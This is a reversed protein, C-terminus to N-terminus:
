SWDQRIIGIYYMTIYRNCHNSTVSDDNILIRLAKYTKYVYSKVFNKLYVQTCLFM